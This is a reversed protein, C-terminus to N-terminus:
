NKNRLDKVADFFVVGCFTLTVISLAFTILLEM